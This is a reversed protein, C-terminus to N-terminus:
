NGIEVGFYTIVLNNTGNNVIEHTEEPEVVVCVGPELLINHNDVKITGSGEKVLFVETKDRHSHSAAIQGPAFTAEAFNTIRPVDGKHLFTRKTISPEHSVSETPLNKLAVIKLICWGQM